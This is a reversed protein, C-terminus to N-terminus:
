GKVEDLMRLLEAREFRRQGLNIEYAVNIIRTLGSRKLHDGQEIMQCASSFCTFSRAKNGRLPFREYHPIVGKLLDLVSRCEYKFTRDAESRRIHGCRFFAQLDQLVPLDKENLSLSFSPRAELGLRLKRRPSFSV